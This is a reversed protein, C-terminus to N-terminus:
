LADKFQTAVIFLTQNDKLDNIDEAILALDFLEACNKNAIVASQSPLDGDKLQKAALATDETEIQKTNPFHNKLYQQCQRLAQQHSYIERITTKDINPLTLLNQQVLITLYQKINCRYKAMAEISEFVVGGTSNELAFIGYDSSGSDLEKLVNDSSVLYNLKYNEINHEAVFTLAAQESFSGEIGQVGIQIM